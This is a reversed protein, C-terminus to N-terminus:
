TTRFRSRTWSDKFSKDGRNAWYAGDMAISVSHSRSQRWYRKRSIVFEGREVAWDPDYGLKRLM